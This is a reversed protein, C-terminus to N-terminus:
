EKEKGARIRRAVAEGIARGDLEITIAVPEGPEVRLGEARALEEGVSAPVICPVDNTAMGYPPIWVEAGPVAAYIRM